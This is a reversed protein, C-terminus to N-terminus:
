LGKVMGGDILINQGTIYGAEPSILFAVTSAVEAVTGFRGMPINAVLEPTEPWSDIFGPLLSNMRIKAPAYREAYLKTFAALGARGVSSVPFSLGPELAGFASINVFAGGGAKEMHPTALRAMRIVNMLVDDFGARWDADPIALLDGKPPHGSNNVVADLRGYRDVTAKVLRALDAPETISGRVALAGLEDALKDVAESTANLVLAYGRRALERAIAAGMGKSAATVIAVKQSM